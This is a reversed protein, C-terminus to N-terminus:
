IHILSLLSAEAQQARTVEAIIQETTIAFRAETEEKLDMVRVSVEEVSKKIVATKGELQIIQDGLGFSQEQELSGQAEYTDM